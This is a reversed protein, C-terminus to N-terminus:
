NEKERDLLYFMGIEMTFDPIKEWKLIHATELFHSFTEREFHMDGNSWLM